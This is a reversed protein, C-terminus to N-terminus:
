TPRTLSLPPTHTRKQRFIRIKLTISQAASKIPRVRLFRNQRTSKQRNETQTDQSAWHQRTQIWSQRLWQAATAVHRLRMERRGDSVQYSSSSHLPHLSFLFVLVVSWRDAGVGVTKQSRLWKSIQVSVPGKQECACLSRTSHPLTPVRTNCGSPNTRELANLREEALRICKWDALAAEDFEACWEVGGSGMFKRNM